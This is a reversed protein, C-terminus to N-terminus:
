VSMVQNTTSCTAAPPRMMPTMCLDAVAWRVGGRGARAARGGEGGPRRGGQGMEGVLRPLSIRIEGLWRSEGRQGRRVALYASLTALPKAVESEMTSEERAEHPMGPRPERGDSLKMAPAAITAPAVM